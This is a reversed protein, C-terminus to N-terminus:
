CKDCMDQFSLIQCNNRVQLLGLFIHIVRSQRSMKLDSFKAIHSFASIIQM